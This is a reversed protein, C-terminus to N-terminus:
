RAEGAAARSNRYLVALAKVNIEVNFYSKEIGSLAKEAVGTGRRSAQRLVADPGSRRGQM